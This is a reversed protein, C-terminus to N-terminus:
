NFPIIIEVITGKSSSSKWDITGGLLTTRKRMNIVGMGSSNNEISFGIGDDIIKITLLNDPGDIIVHVNMAEAHKLVNQLAEQIIRFLIIQSEASLKINEIYSFHIFLTKAANIREVETKLNQIIDFNQLWDKNLSKSLSRIESIAKGLSEDAAFLTHPISPLNRQTIGLLMKTSSLLQGINDHLERSLSAMTAEQVEIQSQKLVDEFKKQLSEKEDIFTNQRKQYFFIYIILVVSLFLISITGSIIVIVIDQAHSHM